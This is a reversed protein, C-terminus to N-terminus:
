SHRVKAPNHIAAAIVPPQCPDIDALRLVTGGGLDAQYSSTASPLWSRIVPISPPLQSKQALGPPRIEPAHSLWDVLVSVKRPTSIMCPWYRGDKPMPRDPEPKPEEDLQTPLVVVDLEAM